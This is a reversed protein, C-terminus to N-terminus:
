GGHFRVRNRSAVRDRSLGGFTREILAFSSFVKRYQWRVLGRWGCVLEIVDFLVALRLRIVIAV